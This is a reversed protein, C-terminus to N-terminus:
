QFLRGVHARACLFGVLQGEKRHIDSARFCGQVEPRVPGSGLCIPYPYLNWWPNYSHTQWRAIDHILSTTLRHRGHHGSDTGVSRYQMSYCYWSCTCLEVDAIGFVSFSQFCFINVCPVCSARIFRRNHGLAGVLWVRRHQESINKKSKKKNQSKPNLQVTLAL